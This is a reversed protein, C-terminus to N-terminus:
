AHIYFIYNYSTVWSAPGSSLIKLSPASRAKSHSMSHSGKRHSCIRADKGPIENIARGLVWHQPPVQDEHVIVMSGTKINPRAHHCKSRVQLENIYDRQWSQWFHQKIASVRTWKDLLNLNDTTVEQEPLAKLSSGVLFHASTLPQQDNPDTSSASLPRSTLIEIGILAISLEEYTFRTNIFSRNLHGKASMVAAEWLGGFHPARSPIFHFNFFNNSCYEAIDKQTTTRFMFDKLQSLKNSAGIFNTANDCSVDSPLGRRGIMGKLAALFAEASLDSVIEIHVVKAAFCVFIAIYTEYPTKGRVPGCFDIGCKSFPRSPNIREPPLNGMIQQLLKPQYRVCHICSKAVSEQTTSGFSCKFSHWLRKPVLMSTQSIFNAFM